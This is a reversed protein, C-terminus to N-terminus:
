HPLESRKKYEAGSFAFVGSLMRHLFPVHLREGRPLELADAADNYARADVARLVPPEDGTIRIMRSYWEARKPESADITGEIDALLSYYDRQLVQHDRAQRGFDFVLQLAGIFAVAMGVYAQEVNFRALVDGVAAAGLVVVLLNFVRNWRELSGRRATHYLANRLVNFRINDRDPIMTVEEATPACVADTAKTWRNNRPEAAESGVFARGDSAAPCGSFPLRLSLRTRRGYLCDAPRAQKRDNTDDKPQNHVQPHLRQPTDCASRLAVMMVCRLRLDMRLNMREVESVFRAMQRAQHLAGNAPDLIAPDAIQDAQQGNDDAQDAAQQDALRLSTNM